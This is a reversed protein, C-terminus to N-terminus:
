MNKLFNVSTICKYGNEKFFILTSFQGGEKSIFELLSSKATDKRLEITLKKILMIFIPPLFFFPFFNTM